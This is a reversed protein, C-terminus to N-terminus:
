EVPHLEPSRSSLLVPTINRPVVLISTTHWGARDLLLVTHPPITAEVWAIVEPATRESRVTRSESTVNSDVLFM